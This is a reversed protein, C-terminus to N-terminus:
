KSLRERFANQIMLKKEVIESRYLEPNDNICIVQNNTNLIEKIIEMPPNACSVYKFVYPTPEVCGILYSYILFIYQNHQKSTRFANLHAEILSKCKNWVEMCHSKLMPSISHYPRYYQKKDLNLNTKFGFSTIVDKTNNFCVKRFTNSILTLKYQKINVRIKTGDENFFDLPSLPGIPFMDDNGYIFHESLGEIMPLFMEITQSNFTPLYRSPIIDNHVVVHVREDDVINKPLQEVNSVVIHIKRIWPMNKKIGEVLFPLLGMDNYRSGNISDLKTICDHDICYKKFSAQWIPENNNVYTFVYDIDFM